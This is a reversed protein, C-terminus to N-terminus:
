SETKDFIELSRGQYSIDLEGDGTGCDRLAVAPLWARPAGCVGMVGAGPAMADHNNVLRGCSGM